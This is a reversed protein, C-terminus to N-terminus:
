GLAVKTALVIHVVTVVDALRDSTDQGDDVGLLASLEPDEVLALLVKGKVEAGLLGTGDAATQRRLVGGALEGLGLLAVRM